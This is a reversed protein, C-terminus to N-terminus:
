HAPAWAFTFDALSLSTKNINNLALMDTGDSIVVRAVTSTTPALVTAFSNLM